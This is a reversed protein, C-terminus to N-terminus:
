EAVLHFILILILRGLLLIVILPIVWGPLRRFFEAFQRPHPTKLAIAEWEGATPWKL